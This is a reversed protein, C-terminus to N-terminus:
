RQYFPIKKLPRPEVMNDLATHVMSRGQAIATDIRDDVDVIPKTTDIAVTDVDVKAIHYVDRGLQIKFSGDPEIRDPPAGIGCEQCLTLLHQYHKVCDLVFKDGEPRLEITFITVRWVQM